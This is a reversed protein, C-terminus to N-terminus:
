IKFAFLKKEKTQRKYQRVNTGTRDNTSTRRKDKDSM